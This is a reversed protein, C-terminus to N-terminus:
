PRNSTATIQVKSIKKSAELEEDFPQIESRKIQKGAGVVEIVESVDDDVIDEEEEDDVEDDLNVDEDVIIHTEGGNEELLSKKYFMDPTPVKVSDILKQQQQPSPPHLVGTVDTLSLKFAKIAPKAPQKDAQRHFTMPKVQDEDAKCVLDDESNNTRLKQKNDEGNDIWKIRIPRENVGTNQTRFDALPGM